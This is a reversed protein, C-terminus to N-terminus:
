YGMADNAGVQLPSFDGPQGPWQRLAQIIGGQFGQKEGRRGVRRSFVGRDGIEGANMLFQAAVPM